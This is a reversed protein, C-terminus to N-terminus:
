NLSKKGKQRKRALDKKCAEKFSLQKDKNKAIIMETVVNEVNGGARSHASLADIQIEIGAKSAMIMSKVIPSPAVRCMKMYILDLLSIRLGSIKATCWIGVPVYIFLVYFGFIFLGIVILYNFIGNEM